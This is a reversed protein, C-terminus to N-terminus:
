RWPWRGRNRESSLWVQGKNATRRQDVGGPVLPDELYLARGSLIRRVENECREMARVAAEGQPGTQVQSYLWRAFESAHAQQLASTNLIQSPDVSLALMKQLLMSWARDKDSETPTNRRNAGFFDPFLGQFATLTLTQQPPVRCVVIEQRATGTVAGTCVWEASYGISYIRGALAAPSLTFTSTTGPTAAGTTVVSGLPDRVTVTAGTPATLVGGVYAQLSLTAGTERPVWTPLGDNAFTVAM